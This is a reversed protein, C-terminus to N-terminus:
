SRKSRGCSFVSDPRIQSVRRQIPHSKVHRSTKFCIQALFNASDSVLTLSLIVCITCCSSRNTTAAACGPLVATLQRPALALPQWCRRSCATRPRLHWRRRACAHTCHRRTCCCWTAAMHNVAAQIASGRTWCRPLTQQLQAWQVWCSRPKMRWALAYATWRRGPRRVLLLRMGASCISLCRQLVSARCQSCRLWHRALSLPRPISIM